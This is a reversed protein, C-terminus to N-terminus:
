HCHILTLCGTRIELGIEFYTDKDPENQKLRDAKMVLIVDPSFTIYSTSNFM